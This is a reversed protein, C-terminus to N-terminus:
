MYKKRIFNDLVIATAIAVNLSEAGGGECRPININENIYHFYKESIGRSENGMLIISPKLLNAQYISKGLLTTGYITLNPFNFCKRLYEQLDTYFCRVRLFSGKSANIVKPNYLDVTENSCVVKKIGYWDCVRLITGLNGPDQIDDLALVIEDKSEPFLPVNEYQEVVALATYNNEISSVQALENKSVLDFPIHIDVKNRELFASTLLLRKITFDTQLLEMVAKEGEVIFLREQKRYKKQHLAKILKKWKQSIM